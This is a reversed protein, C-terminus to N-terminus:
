ALLEILAFLAVSDHFEVVSAEQILYIYTVLELANERRPLLICVKIGFYWHYCPTEVRRLPFNEIATILYNSARLALLERGRGQETMLMNRGLSYNESHNKININEKNNNTVSCM